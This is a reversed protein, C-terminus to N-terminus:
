YILLILYFFIKDPIEKIFFFSKEITIGLAKPLSKNKPSQDCVVLKIILGTSSVKEIAYKVINHTKITNGTKGLFWYRITQKMKKNM